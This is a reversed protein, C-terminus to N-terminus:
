NYILDTLAHKEIHMWLQPFTYITPNYSIKLISITTIIGENIAIRHPLSTPSQTFLLYLSYVLPPSCSIKRLVGLRRLLKDEDRNGGYERVLEQIDANLTHFNPISSFPFCSTYVSQIRIENNSYTDSITFSLNIKDIFEKKIEMNDLVIEECQSALNFYHISICDIPIHVDLSLLIKLDFYSINEKNFKFEKRINSDKLQINIIFEECDIDCEFFYNNFLKKPYAYILGNDRLGWNSLPEFYINPSSALPCGTESYLEVSTFNIEKKEKRLIEYIQHVFEYYKVLNLVDISYVINNFIGKRDLFKFKIKLLPIKFNKM